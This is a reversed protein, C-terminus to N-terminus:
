INLSKCNYKKNCLQYLIAIKKEVSVQRCSFVNKQATTIIMIMLFTECVEAMCPDQTKKQGLLSDSKVHMVPVESSSVCVCVMGLSSSYRDKQEADACHRNSGPHCNMLFTFNKKNNCYFILM